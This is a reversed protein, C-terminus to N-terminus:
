MSFHLGRVNTFFQRLVWKSMFFLMPHWYACWQCMVSLSNWVHLNLLSIPLSLLIYRFSLHCLSLSHPLLQKCLLPLIWQHLHPLLCCLFHLNRMLCFLCCLNSQFFLLCNSLWCPLQQIRLLHVRRSMYHLQCLDGLLDQLAAFLSLMRKWKCLLWQIRM